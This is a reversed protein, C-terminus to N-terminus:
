ELRDTIGGALARHRLAARRSTPNSRRAISPPLMISTMLNADELVIDVGEHATRRPKKDGWWTHTAGFEMGAERMVAVKAEDELAKVWTGLATCATGM